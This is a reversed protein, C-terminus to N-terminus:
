WDIVNNISELCISFKCGRVFLTSSCQWYELNRWGFKLIMDVRATRMSCTYSWNWFILVIQHWQWQFLSRDDGHKYATHRAWRLFHFMSVPGSATLIASLTKLWSQLFFSNQKKKCFFEVQQQGRNIEPLLFLFGQAPQRTNYQHPQWPFLSRSSSTNQSCPSPM